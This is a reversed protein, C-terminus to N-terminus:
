PRRRKASELPGSMGGGSRSVKGARDARDDELLPSRLHYDTEPLRKRRALAAVVV